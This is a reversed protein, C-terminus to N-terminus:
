HTERTRGSEGRLSYIGSIAFQQNLFAFHTVLSKPEQIVSNQMTFSPKRVANIDHNEGDTTSKVM